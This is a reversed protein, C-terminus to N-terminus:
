VCPPLADVAIDPDAGSLAEWVMEGVPNDGTVLHHALHAHLCKVREPGGGPHRLPEEACCGDRKEVFGATSSELKRRLEPDEALLRNVRQM